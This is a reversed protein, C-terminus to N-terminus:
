NTNVINGQGILTAKDVVGQGSPAANTGGTLEFDYGNLNSAVGRALIQNISAANLACVTLDLSFPGNAFIVLPMSFSTLLNCSAGALMQISTLAPLSVTTLLANVGSDFESVTKLSPLSITTMSDGGLGLVGDVIKLLPLSVSTLAAINNAVFSNPVGFARILTPFSIAAVNPSTYNNCCSITSSFTSCSGGSCSRVKYYFFSNAALGSADTATAVAGGVTTLLSFTIGDSSRWVENTSGAPSPNTWTLVITAATSPATIDLSTPGPGSGIANAWSCLTRIRALSLQNDTLARLLSSARSLSNPDCNV